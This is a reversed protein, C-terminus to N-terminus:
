EIRLEKFKEDIEQDISELNINQYGQNIRSLLEAQVKNKLQDKIYIIDKLPLTKDLPNIKDRYRKAINYSNILENRYKNSYKDRLEENNMISKELIDHVIANALNGIFIDIFQNRNQPM